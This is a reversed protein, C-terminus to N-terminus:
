EVARASYNMTPPHHLPLNCEVGPIDATRVTIEAGTKFAPPTQGATLYCELLNESERQNVFSRKKDRSTPLQHYAAPPENPRGYLSRARGWASGRVIPLRRFRAARAPAEQLTWGTIPTPHPHNEKTAFENNRADLRLRNRDAHALRSASAINIDRSATARTSPLIIRTSLRRRRTSWMAKFYPGSDNHSPLRRIVTYRLPLRAVAPKNPSHARTPPRWRRTTQYASRPSGTKIQRGQPTMRRRGKPRRICPWASAARPELRAKGSRNEARPALLYAPRAMADDTRGDRRPAM